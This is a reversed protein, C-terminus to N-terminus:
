DGSPASPEAFAELASERTPYVPIVAELKTIKLIMLLKPPVHCLKLSGGLNTIAKYSSLMEQVGFSDVFGAGRFDLLVWRKGASLQSLVLESLTPTSFTVRSFEGSIDFVIVDGTLQSTISLPKATDM